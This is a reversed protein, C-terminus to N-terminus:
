QAATATEAAGKEEEEKDEDDDDLSRGKARANEEVARTAAAIHQPYQQELTRKITRLRRFIDELDRKMQRDLKAYRELERGMKALEEGNEDNFTRLM